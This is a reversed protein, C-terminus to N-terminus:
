EHNFRIKPNLLAALTDTLLNVFTFIVAVVPLIGQLVPYDRGLISSIALNGLGPINFLQEVVVAGALMNALTYGIVVIIPALANKLGYYFIISFEGIGCARATRIYDQQMVELMTSKTMRGIQGSHMIGLVLSPLALDWLAIFVGSQAITHYGAVPFIRTKVGLLQIMIIAIWFAPLSISILSLISLFKEYIKGHVRSALIGLPIGILSSIFTAIIALIFTPEIRNIIVSATPANWRISKGFDFKAVGASWHLFQELIPKDLGLEARMSEVQETTAMDGLMTRVPDGPMIHVIFFSLILIILILLLSQLSRKLIYKFM